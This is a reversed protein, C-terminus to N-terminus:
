YVEPVSVPKVMVRTKLSNAVICEEHALHHLREEDAASPLKQGSCVIRPNLTVSEVWAQGNENTGVVGIAEDVYSDLQFGAKYALYVFTLMHCSSVAAVLAEEPNVKTPDSWPLPVNSVAASAKVVMGGGFTWTHDRSYRGKLFDTGTRTWRITAKHEPM